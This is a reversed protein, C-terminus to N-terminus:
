DKLAAELKDLGEDLLAEPITLPYLLRVTEGHIGCSLLLLGHELAKAALQGAPRGTPRPSVGPRRPILPAIESQRGAM